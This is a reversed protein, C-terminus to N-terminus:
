SAALSIRSRAPFTNLHNAQKDPKNTKTKVRQPAAAKPARNEYKRKKTLM